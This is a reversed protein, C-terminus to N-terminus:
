QRSYEYLKTYHISYSTIVIEISVVSPLIAKAIGEATYEGTQENYYKKDLTPKHQIPITINIRNEDRLLLNGLWGRGFIESIIIIACAFLVIIAIVVWTLYSKYFPKKIPNNINGPASYGYNNWVDANEYLKTYHISYSTIVYLPM